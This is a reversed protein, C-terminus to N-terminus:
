VLTRKATAIIETIPMNLTRRVNKPESLWRMLWVTIRGADQDKARELAYVVQEVCARWQILETLQTDRDSNM